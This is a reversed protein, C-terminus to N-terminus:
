VDLTVSLGHEADTVTVSTFDVTMPPSCKPEFSATVALTFLAKGNQVPFDGAASFSDKNEASPNKGGRNVCSAEAVIEVHVQTENGLGAIKGDVTLTTGSVSTGVAGVFHPSGAFASSPAILAVTAIVLGALFTRM